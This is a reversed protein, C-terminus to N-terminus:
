KEIDNALCSILFEFIDGEGRKKVGSAVPKKKNHVCGLMCCVSDRDSNPNNFPVAVTSVRQTDFSGYKKNLMDGSELRCLLQPPPFLFVVNKM